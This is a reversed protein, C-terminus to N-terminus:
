DVRPNLYRSTAGDFIVQTRCDANCGPLPAGKFVKPIYIYRSKEFGPKDKSGITIIADCAGQKGVKSNKLASQPIWQLGAGEFSVQSTPISLYDYQVSCDRAWQYLKELREDERATSSMNMKVADLMDWFVVFPKDREIIRELYNVDKRHIDYIRLRDAGGILADFRENMVDFGAEKMMPFDMGLASRAFNGKIKLKSGENNFWVIPRTQLEPHMVTQRLWYTGCHACFSTKGKGPEAAVIIQNGTRINPMSDQLCKLPWGLATGSDEDELIEGIDAHCYDDSSKRRVDSEFDTVTNRIEEFLDMDEGVTYDTQLDEIVKNFEMMRLDRIMNEAIAPDAPKTMADFVTNYFTSEKEDCNVDIFFKQVFVEMSFDEGSDYMQWHKRLQNIITREETDFRNILISGNLKNFQQRDTLLRLLTKNM